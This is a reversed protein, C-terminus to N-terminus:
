EDALFKEIQALFPKGYWASKLEGVGSVRKFQSMTRPKKRAMDQLTANSFVVYAPIGAEQALKSRLERLADYLDTEASSLTVADAAKSAPAEQKKRLLMQVQKGQYLVQAAKPLLRVTQHERDTMLCGEAELQAAM